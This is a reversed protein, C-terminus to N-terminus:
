SAALDHQSCQALDNTWSIRVVWFGSKARSSCSQTPAGSGYIAVAHSWDAWGPVSRGSPWRGSASASASRSAPERQEPVSRLREACGRGLEEYAALLRRSRPSSAGHATIETFAVNVLGNFTPVQQVSEM